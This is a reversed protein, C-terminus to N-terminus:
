EERREEQTRTTKTTSNQSLKVEVRRNMARGEATNNETLPESEGKGTAKIRWAQIGNQILYQRVAEARKQSLIRNAEADGDADTHGIIEASVEKNQLLYAVLENLQPVSSRLLKNKNKEFQVNPLSLTKITTNTTEDVYTVTDVKSNKEVYITDHVIKEVVRVQDTNPNGCDGFLLCRFLWLLFAISALLSLIGCGFRQCGVGTCGSPLLSPLCGNPESGILNRGFIGGFISNIWNKIGLNFGYIKRVCGRSEQFCGQRELIVARTEPTDTNTFIEKGDQDIEQVRKLLVPGSIRGHNTGPHYAIFCNHLYKAPVADFKFDEWPTTKEHFIQEEKELGMLLENVYMRKGDPAIEPHYYDIVEKEHHSLFPGKQIALLQEKYAEESLEEFAYLEFTPELSLYSFITKQDKGLEKTGKTSFQCRLVGKYYTILTKM